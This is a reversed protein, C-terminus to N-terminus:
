PRAHFFRVVEIKKSVGNAGRFEVLSKVRLDDNYQSDVPTSGEFTPLQEVTVKRSFRVGTISGTGHDTGNCMYTNLIVPYIQGGVGDTYLTAVGVIQNCELSNASHRVPTSTSTAMMELYDFNCGNPNDSLYCSPQGNLAGLKAKFLRWPIQGGIEGTSTVCYPDAANNKCFIYLSDYQNQLLEIAEEALYTATMVEKTQKAYTSSGIIVTLPGILILGLIAISTLTELLTFGKISKKNILKFIIM